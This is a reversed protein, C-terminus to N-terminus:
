ENLVIVVYDEVSKLGFRKSPILSRLWYGDTIHTPKTPGSVYTSSRAFSEPTLEGSKRGQRTAM